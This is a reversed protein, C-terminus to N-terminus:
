EAQYVLCYDEQVIEEIETPLVVGVAARTLCGITELYIRDLPEGKGM